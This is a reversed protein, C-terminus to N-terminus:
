RPVADILWFHSRLSQGKSPPSLYSTPGSVAAVEKMYRIMDEYREGQEALRAYYINDDRERNVMNTEIVKVKKLNYDLPRSPV